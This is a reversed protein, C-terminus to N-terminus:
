GEPAPVPTVPPAAQPASEPAAPTVPPASEPAVQPPCVPCVPCTVPAPAPAVYSSGGAGALAGGLLLGVARLIPMLNVGKAPNKM